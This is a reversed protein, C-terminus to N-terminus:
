LQVRLCAKPYQLTAMPLDGSTVGKKPGEKYQQRVIKPAKFGSNLSSVMNFGSDRLM